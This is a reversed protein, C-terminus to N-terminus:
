DIISNGEHKRITIQKECIHSIDRQSIALCTFYDKTIMNIIDPLKSQFNEQDICDLAEDLIVLGCKTNYSYKNLARKFAIQLLLKEYGSLRQTSLWKNTEENRVLVTIENRGEEMSIHVKYKSFAMIKNIYDEVALLKVYLMRAPMGKNGILTDYMELLKIQQEDINIAERILIRRETDHEITKYQAELIGKKITMDNLLTQQMAIDLTQVKINDQIEKLQAQAYIMSNRLIIIHDKEVLWELAKIANLYEHYETETKILDLLEVRRL